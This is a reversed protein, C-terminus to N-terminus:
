KIFHKLYLVLTDLLFYIDFAGDCNKIKVPNSTVICLLSLIYILSTQFNM